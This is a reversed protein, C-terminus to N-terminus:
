HNRLSFIFFTRSISPFRGKSKDEKTGFGILFEYIIKMRLSLNKSSGILFFKLGFGVENFLVCSAM